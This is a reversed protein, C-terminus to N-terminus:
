YNKIKRITFESGLEDPVAYLIGRYNLRPTSNGFRVNDLTEFDIVMGSDLITKENYMDCGSIENTYFKFNKNVNLLDNKLFELDMPQGDYTIHGLNNDFDHIMIICNEFGNLARLEDLVVFRKEPPLTPDYFHADLYVFIIDKRGDKRYKEVFDRLFDPSSQHFVRVNPYKELKAKSHLYYEEV